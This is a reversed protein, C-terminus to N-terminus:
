PELRTQMEVAVQVALVMLGLLVVAAVAVLVPLLHGRLQLHPEQAVMELRLEQLTEVWRRHEVGVALRLLELRRMEGTTVKPHRNPQHTEQAETEQPEMQEDVVEQVVQWVMEPEPIELVAVAVRLHTPALYLIPVQFEMMAVQEALVAAVL